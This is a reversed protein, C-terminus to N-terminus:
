EAWSPSDAQTYKSVRNFRGAPNIMFMVALTMALIAHQYYVIM